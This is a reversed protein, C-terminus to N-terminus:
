RKTASHTSSTTTTRKTSSATSLRDVSSRPPTSSLHFPASGSQRESPSLLPTGNSKPTTAGFRSVRPYSSTPTQRQPIRSPTDDSGDLSLQSGQRSPPKSGPRSSPRSGPKSNERSGPTRLSPTRSSFRRLGSSSENDSLSDPTSASLSSRTPRSMAVSRQSRERIWHTSPHCHPAHPSLSTSWADGRLFLTGGAGMHLPFACPVQEQARLREFIPMLEALHEDVRCPDNKVLFEDLAVWGGGVRVMVTSRLIRVLRLKQSDGFRYKGEGVQFVRFKQRCTCLMVLRKVEDHIKDADTAPKREQWDPRLAAIFEQWDILGEGNRDFLDAVTEMELRSTPFKTSIIGDIFVDRPILGNNDKDMKRFLDTLRSKKHNNYKLFRKRWEDWSFQKVREVDQLYLLHDHLRKQREWCMQWVIRWQEWLTQARPSRFQMDASSTLFRPGIHPLRDKEPTQDRSQSSKALRGRSQKRADQITTPKPKCVVEVEQQRAAISEMFEKHQEILRELPPIEDPLPEHQLELLRNELSRLWALLNDITEDLDKLSKLYTELKDKRGKAWQLVEDWRSEIITIWNKIIPVAEPHAKALIRHALDLTDRKNIEQERLERLFSESERLLELSQAENNPASAFRLKQEAEGLWELLMHVNKHLKEAERQADELKASRARALEQVEEWLSQLETLHESIDRADATAELQRGTKLVSQMQSSRSNLESKLANHADILKSVTDLDGYLPTDSSLKVKSKRLWELLAQLAESFQGSLLLTEELKRQRDTLVSCVRTWLEKLEGLMRTLAPEDSKPAREKLQKGNRMVTDYQGQRQSVNRQIEQLKELCKKANTPKKSALDATLTNINEDAERLYQVLSFWADYFEQAEKYGHDLARTRESTKAVVREWRHQVSVLLNKILIVDQKQSFYKLHTGKKDLLLMTERHNSVDKQLEKHEEMQKQITELVRSVPGLNQLTKETRTLWENFQQLADHFETAEKLAIELKIKKDSARALIADWRQKLTRLIHQLNNSPVKLENQKQVYEKGQSLLMEVKPRTQELETFVEMFRQLQESSTEPLGGVPKSAGIVADVDGLYGLMDQVDAFYRQAEKLYEELEHQRDSAKQLLASWKRNLTSLKDKTTSAEQSAKNSEILHRGADNLTDVSSKHAQIDNAVIKLKALEVEILQPDGLVPKLQDLTDTTREIWVLLENLAHQFQGLHLLAHELNKQREVMNHLLNEWRRNVGNLLDRISQAQETGTKETLEMAQRNLSDIKVMYPDVHNKFDKLEAIQKKVADVDSGIPGLRRFKEEYQDLFDTVSKLTDYFEMAKEMADILNEERKAYLVTINDWARDLDEIHKKVEPKEPEGCLSMLKNGTQRVDEVRPKTKDIDYRIEQLAVQQKQIEQPQAAPAELSRLNEQLDKLAEMTSKLNEWFQQAVKFTDDLANGRKNIKSNVDDWLKTLKDLKKSIDKVVPDSKNPAKSIVDNAIKQVTNFANSRNDLDNKLSKNESIQERIKPPHASIPEAQNLQDTTNALARLMGDIKDAFQSSEQMAQELAHQRNLLENKLAAYRANEEELIEYVKEVDEERVLTGLTEGTKNQKSLLPKHDLVSQLLRENTDQQIAIQDSRIAPLGLNSIKLELDDMWTMLTNHTDAFHDSLSLVQDLISLRDSSLGVVTEVLDKLDELKEKLELDAKNPQFDRIVRKGAALADRVRGRQSSIEDNVKRHDSLQARVVKPDLAPADADKLNAEMDRFWELLEDVDNRVEKSRQKSLQLREARRQIQDVIGDFRRNDRAVLSEITVAGEGPSLASLQPGIGNITDLVQRMQPIESEMRFLEPESIDTAVLINETDQMWEVLRQHAENFQQVLPLAEQTHKLLESGRNVIDGYRRQLSDLKDKLQLAEDSTIHKMLEAGTDVIAEVQPAHNAVDENIEVLNHMQELIADAQVPVVRYRHLRSEVGEMWEVVDQYSLVLSRLGQRSAALVNGINESADVLNTYRDTINKVKDSLIVGEDEGVLNMLQAAIDTLETFDRQKGLIEEHLKDHERIRQHILEEDTPVFEMRKVAREADSLWQALPVIKEHFKKAMRMAEELDLTRTQAVNQLNDFRTQLDKLQRQISNVEAPDCGAIVEQGLNFLSTMSNQRDLLMKTLFKQEQLQAKVVKYDASPPKQNAVMEETDAMWKSLGDLAEQFKGSQLLGLDIRRERENWKVKIGNWLDNLKELDKELMLTSVGGHASRILEQGLQNCQVVDNNLPNITKRTFSKFEEHQARIQELDSSIPKLAKVQADVNRLVTTVTSYENYFHELSTLTRHLQEEHVRVQNRLKDLTRLFGSIQERTQMADISFSSEYNAKVADHIEGIAETLDQIHGQLNADEHIQQKVAPIERAPPQLNNVRSEISSLDVSFGKIRENLQSSVLAASKLEDYRDGLKAQLDDIRDGIADVDSILHDANGGVDVVERSVNRSAAQLDKLPKVLSETDAIITQIRDILKPDKSAGGLADFAGLRDECRRTNQDLNRLDDQFDALKKLYTDFLQNKANLDANLKEWRAKISQLEGQVPEKDVDCASLFTNGLGKLIEYEGSKKWVESRLVNLEKLQHDLQAKKLVGLKIASLKEEASRLWNQFSQAAAHYQKCHEMCTQLRTHREVVDRKVRDWQSSIKDLDRQLAPDTLDRGRNLLMRVEHERAMIDHYAPEHTDIQHQLTPKHASVLLKDSMASAEASLWGLVRACNEALQRGERLAREAEARRNDLKKQLTEYQKALEAVRNNVDARSNPDELVECLNAAAAEADALLPRQGELQRGLNEIKRLLEDKDMDYPLADLNDNIQRLSERLRNLGADFEKSTNAAAGLSNARENLQGYLDDWKNQLANLKVTVLEYEPSKVEFHQVLNKGVNQLHNLQPLQTRFDEKLVQVQQVQTKVMRPDSSIPGLVTLMREKGQLWANLNNHTDLFDKLQESAAIKEKCLDSLVKWRQCVGDLENKLMEVGPSQSKRVALNKVMVKASDLLNQKEYMEELIKRCQNICKEAEINSDITEKPIRKQVKDLFGNLNKMNDRHRRIEDRLGELENQRDSLRVGAMNYRNNIEQLQLQIPTTESVRGSQVDISQRRISTVSIKKATGSQASRQKDAIEARILSDYQSGLDNLKDITTGYDRHERVIAQCEDVQHQIVEFDVSVPALKNIRVEFSELWSRVQDRLKNYASLHESKQKYLNSKETTTVVLNKWLNELHKVQDRVVGVNTVDRKSILDKGLQVCNHFMPELQSKTNLIEQMHSMYEAPLYNFEAGEVNEQLNIIEKELATYENNFKNLEGLTKELFDGHEVARDYLQDFKAKTDMFKNVLAKPVDSSMKFSNISARHSDLSQLFAKHERIQDLLQEKILSAPRWHHKFQEEAQLVLGVLKDLSGQVSQTQILTKELTNSRNNLSSKLKEYRDRLNRVPMELSQVELSSINKPLVRLLAELSQQANDILRGNSVVESYLVKTQSMQSQIIVPDSSMPEALLGDVRPQIETLWKKAAEVADNYERQRSGLTQMADQLHNVRSLLDKYHVTVQQLDQEIPSNVIQEVHSLRNPLHTRFDNLYHLFEAKDDFYKQVSITIFRLDAQHAIVDSVFDRINDQNSPVIRLQHLNKEKEELTHRASTLWSSFGNLETRLRVLEDRLYVIKKAFKYCVENAREVRSKLENGRRELSAVEPASFADGGTLSIHRVQELCTVVVRQHSDIEDKIANLTNVQHRIGEEVDSPGGINALKAEVNGIWELQKGLEDECVSYKEFIAQDLEQAATPPPMAMLEETAGDIWTEEKVQSSRLNTMFSQASECERIRTDLKRELNNWKVNFHEVTSHIRKLDGVVKTPVGMRGLQDVATNMKDIHFQQATVVSRLKHLRQLVDRLEELRNPVVTFNALDADVEEYVQENMELEMLGEELLKLRQGHLKSQSNIEQWLDMLNDLSKKLAPTKLPINRFTEQFRKVPVEEQALRLEFDSHIRKAYELSDRDRPLPSSIIHELERALSELNTKIAICQELFRQSAQKSEEEARARKEFEDFIANVEDMERRLRRLQPDNPDGEAILKDADDNLARRIANRQEPGMALFQEFDWDKVVKITAFIMNQRLRLQKKQWLAILRDFHKRLREADEIAKANPPPLTFCVGPILAEQGRVQVRWKVRGYTDLLTHTQGKDVSVQGQKYSCISHVPKPQLVGQKREHLPVITHSRQILAQVVDGYNNFEERLEQMGRLLAEGQDLSFDTQSYKSNLREEQKTLWSEAEKVEQFFAHHESAHKLHIELCLTLQLLWSWKYQLASLHAEICKAAPHAQSVLKEGRDVIDAFQMERAELESMLTEYYRHVSTLDLNKDAWDRNIEIREKENLWNLENTAAQLFDQLADLDSLRKTSTSLLDAYLNQLQNLRQSYLTYEDGSFNNKQREAHVIKSHFQDITKHEQQHKQLESKVTALDTGYEAALLKKLKNQCWETYEQLDRFYPNTDVQRTELVTRTQRTVTTEQIPYSLGALKQVMSTHFTARIQSWRQCLKNVEKRLERAEPCNSNELVSVDSSVQNLPQELHRLDTEISEVVNKADIPHMRDLNRSEKAIRSEIDTLKFDIRKIERFVKDVLRDYSDLRDTEQQLQRERDGLARMLREWAINLAKPRYAVDIEEETVAEFYKKLQEYIVNLNSLDQHKQAVEETRFQHLDALLQKLEILSAPFVREQLLSTKEKCWYLFEQAAEKYEHMRRQADSDYLPHMAPPEPFVDYLSSIYTILSKEDPENTDVDEPDLLRTVGYEKEVVHFATDLRERPKASRADRWSIIDPRNRHIIASFALGDRWSSTFDNVKVGPYRATSKRAWQLLAEKATLNDDHGVVIDSIQFHLIITWILGLTLKPNGDVIDEARINVLKIKKYRLFDLAMQANQLMHFRMNGKERPLNEGSLVELLTLLNRGDRLDEFLDHIRKGAKSLHKNVWKTFTKKQIADREDKFQTLADEYGGHQDKLRKPPSDEKYPSGEHLKAKHGSRPASGEIIDERPDFGLRDKYYIQTSM